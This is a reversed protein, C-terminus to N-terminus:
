RRVALGKDDFFHLRDERFKLGIEQGPEAEQEGHSRITMQGLPGADVIVYSDAGLYELVDVRADVQGEGVQIVNQDLRPREPPEQPICTHAQLQLVPLHDQEAVDRERRGKEVM